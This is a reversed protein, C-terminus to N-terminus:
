APSKFLRRKAAMQARGTTKRRGKDKLPTFLRSAGAPLRSATDNLAGGSFVPLHQTAHRSHLPHWMCRSLGFRENSLLLLFRVLFSVFYFLLPPTLFFLLLSPALTSSSSTSSLLTFFKVCIYTSGTM